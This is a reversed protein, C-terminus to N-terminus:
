VLCKVVEDPKYAPPESNKERMERALFKVSLGEVPCVIRHNILIVKLANKAIEVDLEYKSDFRMGNICAILENDLDRHRNSYLTAYSLRYPYSDAARYILNYETMSLCCGMRAPFFHTFSYSERYHYVMIFNLRKFAGRSERSERLFNIKIM